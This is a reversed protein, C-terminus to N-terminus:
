GVAGEVLWDVEWEFVWEVKQAAGEVLLLEWWPGVRPLYGILHAKYVTYRQINSIKTNKTNYLMM